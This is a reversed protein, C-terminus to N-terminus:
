PFYEIMDKVMLCRWHTQVIMRVLREFVTGSPLQDFDPPGGTALFYDLEKKPEPKLDEPMPKKLVLALAAERRRKERRMEFGENVYVNRSPLRPYLIRDLTAAADLVDFDSDQVEGAPPEEEAEEAEGDEDDEDDEGDGDDEGNEDDDGDENGDGDDNNDGDEDDEENEDDDESENEDDDGSENDEPAEQDMEELIEQWRSINANRQSIYDNYFKLSTKSIGIRNRAKRDAQNWTDEYLIWDNLRERLAQKRQEASPPPTSALTLRLHLSRVFRLRFVALRAEKIQRNGNSDGKRKAEKRLRTIEENMLKTTRIYTRNASYNEPKYFRDRCEQLENRLENRYNKLTDPRNECTPTVLKNLNPRKRVGMFQADNYIDDIDADVDDLDMTYGNAKRPKKVNKSAKAPGPRKKSAGKTKSEGKTKSAGKTKSTGKTKSSEKTKSVEKIKSAEKVKAREDDTLLGGFRQKFSLIGPREGKGYLFEESTCSFDVFTPRKTSDFLDHPEIRVLTPRLNLSILANKLLQHSRCIIARRSIEFDEPWRELDLFERHIEEFGKNNKIDNRRWLEEPEPWCKELIRHMGLIHDTFERIRLSVFPAYALTDLHKCVVGVLETLSDGVSEAFQRSRHLLNIAPSFLGKIEDNADSRGFETSVGRVVEIIDPYVVYVFYLAPSNYGVADYNNLGDSFIEDIKQIRALWYAHTAEPGEDREPPVDKPAM